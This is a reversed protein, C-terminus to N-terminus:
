LEDITYIKTYINHNDYDSIAKNALIEAYENKYIYNFEIYNFETILHLIKYCIESLNYKEIKCINKMQNIIIKNNGNVIIDTIGLLLVIHLGHYLAMYEAENKTKNGIYKCNSLLREKNIYLVVGIGANSYNNFNSLYNHDHDNNSSGNFYLVNPILPYIKYNNQFTM